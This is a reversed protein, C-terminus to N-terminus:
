SSISALVTKQDIATQELPRFYRALAVGSGIAQGDLKGQLCDLGRNGGMHMDIVDPADRM